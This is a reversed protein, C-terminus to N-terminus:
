TIFQILRELLCRNTMQVRKTWQMFKRQSASNLSIIRKTVSLVNRVLLRANKRLILIEASEAVRYKNKNTAATISSIVGEIQM